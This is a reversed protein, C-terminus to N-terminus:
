GKKGIERSLEHKQLGGVLSWEHKRGDNWQSLENGQSICTHSLEHKRAGAPTEHDEWTYHGTNENSNRMQKFRSPIHDTAM